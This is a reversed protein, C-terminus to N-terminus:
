LFQIFYGVIDRGFSNSQTILPIVTTHPIQKHYCPTLGISWDSEEWSWMGLITVSTGAALVQTDWQPWHSEAARPIESSGRMHKVSCVHKLVERDTCDRTRSVGYHKMLPVHLVLLIHRYRSHRVDASWRTKYWESVSNLDQSSLCQKRRVNFSYSTFPLM